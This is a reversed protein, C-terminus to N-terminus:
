GVISDIPLVGESGLGLADTLCGTDSVVECTFQAFLLSVCVTVVVDQGEAIAKDSGHFTFTRAM